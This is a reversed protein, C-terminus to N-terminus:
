HASEDPEETYSESVGAIRSYLLHLEARLKKVKAYNAEAAVYGALEDLDDL